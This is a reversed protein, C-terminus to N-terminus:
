GIGEFGLGEALEVVDELFMPNRRGSVRYRRIPANRDVVDVLICRAKLFREAAAFVEHRRIYWDRTATKGCQRAPQDVVHPEGATKKNDVVLFYAFEDVIVTGQRGKLPTDHGKESSNQPARASSRSAAGSSAAGPAKRATGSAGHTNRSRTEKIEKLASKGAEAVEFEAEVHVDPESAVDIGIHRLYKRQYPQLDLLRSVVDPTLFDPAAKLNKTM